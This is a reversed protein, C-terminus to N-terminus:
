AARLCPSYSRNSNNISVDLYFDGSLIKQLFEEAEGPAWETDFTYPDREDLVFNAESDERVMSEFACNLIDAATYLGM